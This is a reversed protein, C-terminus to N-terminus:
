TTQKAKRKQILIYIVQLAGAALMGAGFGNIFDGMEFKQTEMISGVIMLIIGTLIVLTLKANMCGFNGILGV